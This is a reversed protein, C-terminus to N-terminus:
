YSNLYWWQRRTIQNCGPFSVELCVVTCSTWASRSSRNCVERKLKYVSGAEVVKSSGM